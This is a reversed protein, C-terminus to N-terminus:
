NTANYRASERTKLFEEQKQMECNGGSTPDFAAKYFAGDASVVVISHEDSGFAVITKVDPVRFQAFSWESSFYKPLM